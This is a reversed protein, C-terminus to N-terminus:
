TGLYGPSIIRFLAWLDRLRNEVPTGTIALRREPNLKAVARATESDPNRLLSAEDVVLTDYNQQLHFALDRVMTGYSTLTLDASQAEPRKQDRGSGHLCTAHLEPAFRRIEEQWNALLSTPVLVLGRGLKGLQKLKTLAALTQLTKGLGMEDALLAGGFHQWRDLIWDAGHIQYDRLTADGSQLPVQRPIEISTEPSQARRLCESQARTLQLKGEPRVIGLDAFLPEIQENVDRSIVVEAGNRTRTSAQGSRLLTLVKERPIIKGGDTQFSLECSLSSSPGFELHPRVVHLSKMVHRLREGIRVQARKELAPLEDALFRMIREKNRLQFRDGQLQFGAQYLLQRFTKDEELDNARITRGDDDLTAEATGTNSLTLDLANFSGELTIIRESPRTEFRLEALWGHYPSQLLDLWADIDTLFEDLRLDLKGEKILELAQDRLIRSDTELPAKGLTEGDIWGLTSGWRIPNPKTDTRITVRDGRLSSDLVPIPPMTEELVEVTKGSSDLVRPHGGLADLFSAMQEDALHIMTPLKLGPAHERLWTSLKADAASAQSGNETTELHAGLRGKELGREFAQPFHVRCLLTPLEPKPRTDAEHTRDPAAGSLAALMVAVGHPCVAGTERNERCHCDVQLTSDTKIVTRLRKRGVRFSATALAPQIRLAEVKGREFLSKGEKFAQWTAEKRLRQENWDSM